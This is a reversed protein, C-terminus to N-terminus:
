RGLRDVLAELAAQLQPDRGASYPLERAVHTHPEVGVGELREGDVEVESVALYLLSGDALPHLSGALVAGATREGVLVGLDHKRIAYALMEKGSRTGSDILVALPRRWVTEVTAVDGDRHRYKLVPVAPNFIDLYEPSAGGWGGRFDLVLAETARLEDALLEKLLAHYDPHAYSRVRVYGISRGAHEIVRAGARMSALFQAKPQITRPVVRLDLRGEPGPTRQVAVMTGVRDRARFAAIDSWPEGEVSVIEDGALIGARDAPGGDYVDAVFVRGEIVRTALGIGVYQVRGRPLPSADHDPWRGDFFVDALEYYERQGPILHATHSVGLRGLAENIVASLARDDQAAWARPTLDRRVADWDVGRFSPDYFRDRVARWAEDFVDGGGPPTGPAEPGLRAPPEQALATVAGVIVALIAAWRTM